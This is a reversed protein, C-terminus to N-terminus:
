DAWITTIYNGAPDDCTQLGIAHRSALSFVQNVTATAKRNMGPIIQTVHLVRGNLVIESGVSLGRITGGASSAAEVLYYNPLATWQFVYPTWSPTKEGNVGSFSQIPYHNGNWNMGDTQNVPAVPKTPEAKPEVKPAPTDAPKTVTNEAVPEASKTEAPQPAPAPAQPEPKNEQVPKKQETKKAPEAKQTKTQHTTTQAKPQSTKSQMANATWIAIIAIILIMTIIIKIAKSHKHIM